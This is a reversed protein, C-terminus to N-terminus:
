NDYKEAGLDRNPKMKQSEQRKISVRQKNM